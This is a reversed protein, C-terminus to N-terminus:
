AHAGAKPKRKAAKKKEVRKPGRGSGYSRKQPM